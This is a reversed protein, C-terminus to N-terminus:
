QWVRGNRKFYDCCMLANGMIHQYRTDQFRPKHTNKTCRQWTDSNFLCCVVYCLFRTQAHGSFKPHGRCTAWKTVATGLSGTSREKGRELWEICAFFDAILDDHGASTSWQRYM